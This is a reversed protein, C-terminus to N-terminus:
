PTNQAPHTPDSQSLFDLAVKLDWDVVPPTTLPTGHPKLWPRWYAHLGCVYEDTVALAGMHLYHAYEAACVTCASLLM